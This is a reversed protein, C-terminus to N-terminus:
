VAVPRPELARALLMALVLMPAIVAFTVRIGFADAVLGMMAPAGLMVVQVSLTLAAVNESSPRDGIQAAASTSAPFTTCVGLGLLAFGCLAVPLGPAFVVLGLGGLAVGMLARGVPAPRHRTVWGDAFFRGFAIAAVFVPLPLADAWDPVAFSDRSYIVSWNRAAAEVLSGGLAFGLLRITAGSPLALRRRLGVAAHGRAAAAHLPLVVVLTGVLVIPVILGFHLAPSLQWGRALVGFLFVALQGLSWIGHCSNMLRRGGAAEVRDAEVNMAVNSIAFLASFGAIAIFLAPATPALAMLLVGLAMLPLALLLIPKTGVREVIRSSFLFMVTAGAPGGILTLGLVGADIGLGQQLDPIRTLMSGTALAHILFVLRIARRRSADSPSATM